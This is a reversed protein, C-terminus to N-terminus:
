GGLLRPPKRSKPTSVWRMPSPVRWRRSGRPIIPSYPDRRDVVALLTQVLRKLTRERREREQVAVTNDQEVVMVGAELGGAHHILVHDVHKVRLDGNSGSRHIDSKPQGSELVDRNTMEYRRSEAPGLLSAM